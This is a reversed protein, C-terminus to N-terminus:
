FQLHCTSSSDQDETEMESASTPTTALDLWEGRLEIVVM